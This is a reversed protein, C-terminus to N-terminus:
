RVPGYAVNEKLELQERQSLIVDDYYPTGQTNETFSVTGTKRRSKQYFHGCLFGTIFFLISTVLFVTVSAVAIKGGEGFNLTGVYNHDATHAM